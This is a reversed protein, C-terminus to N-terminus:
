GDNGDGIIEKMAEDPDIGLDENTMVFRSIYFSIAACLVWPLVIGWFVWSPFGFVFTLERAAAALKEKAPYAFLACYGVSWVMATGWLAFVVLAEPWASRLVPDVGSRLRPDHSPPQHPNSMLIPPFEPCTTGPLIGYALPLQL